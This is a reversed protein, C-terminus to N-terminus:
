CRCTIEEHRKVFRLGELVREPTGWDSWTMAPLEAVGILSPHREIVDRSFDGRVPLALQGNTAPPCEFPAEEPHLDLIATLQPLASRCAALISSAKGLFVFTNWLCGRAFCGQATEPAPKEWFRAVESVLVGTRSSIRAGPEIWGFGPEPEGPRAGLLIIREPHEEVFGEVSAVYAMFAERDPIFHDSPFVGVTADPDHALIWQVPLFIGAATGRDESQVLIHQAPPEPFEEALYRNHAHCTVIVTREPAIELAVRELTHRLLSKSELIPAFQKPRDDGCIQRVLPRLRVGSGGALVVGWLTSM